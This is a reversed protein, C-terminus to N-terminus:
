FSPHLSLQLEGWALRLNDPPPVRPVCICSKLDFNTYGLSVDPSFAKSVGWVFGRYMEPVASDEYFVPLNIYTITPTVSADNFLPLRVTGSYVFEVSSGVWCSPPVPTGCLGGTAFGTPGSSPRNYWDAAAAVNFLQGVAFKPGLDYGAGFEYGHSNISLPNVSQVGNVPCAIQNLCLGTVDSRQHNFYNLHLAVGHVSTSVGAAFWRDLLSGSVFSTKPALTLIRGLQYGRYTQNVFVHWNPAFLYDVGWDVRLTNVTPNDNTYGLGVYGPPPPANSDSQTNFIWKPAVTITLKKVPPPDKKQDKDQAGAPLTQFATLLIACAITFAAPTRFCRLRLM